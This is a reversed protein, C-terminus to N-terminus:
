DERIERMGQGAAWHMVETAVGPEEWGTSAAYLEAGRGLVWSGLAAAEYFPVGQGALTALFGTLVDGMGGRAMLPHGTANWAAGRGGEVVFSRASKALVVSGSEEALRQAQARRTGNRPDAGMRKMLRALEGPHPTLLRKGKESIPGKGNWAGGALANLADADVVMPRPDQRLLSALLPLPAAGMGPGVGLVDCPFDMVEACSRVGRVMVEPPCSAALIDQVERPCFLTVLGGGMAAAAAASLRAAGTLGRSGAVIGIRGSQGKHKSFGARRPLVSRLGSLTVLVDREAGVSGGAGTEGERDAEPFGGVHAADTRDGALGDGRELDFFGELGELPVVALRGVFGAAEDGFLVSKPWGVTVTLDAVVTEGGEGLGSPLDLALTRAFKEERLANLTRVGAMVAGRPKGGSGIGLLGDVLLLPRGAPVERSELDAVTLGGGDSKGARQRIQQLKNGTLARGEGEAFAPRLEVRWGATLLRDAVVLADGGNHGKGVFVVALGKVPGLWERVVAAMGEGAAEMLGEEGVGAAIARRELATM